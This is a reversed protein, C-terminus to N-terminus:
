FKKNNGSPFARNALDAQPHSRVSTAGPQAGANFGSDASIADNGILGSYTLVGPAADRENVESEGNKDL